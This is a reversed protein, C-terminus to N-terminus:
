PIIQASLFEEADISVGNSTYDSGYKNVGSAYLM